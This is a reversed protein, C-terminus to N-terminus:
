ELVEDKAGVYNEPEMGAIGAWIREIWLAVSM